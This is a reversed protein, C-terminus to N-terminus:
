AAKGRARNMGIEILERRAALLVFTAFCGAAVVFQQLAAVTAPAHWSALMMVVGAVAALSATRAVTVWSLAAEAAGFCYCPHQRGAGVERALVYSFFSLVVCATGAGAPGALRLLLWAGLGVEWTGLAMGLWPRARTAVRYDVFAFSAMLPNRMKQLGSIVFTIGVLDLAIGLLADSGITSGLQRVLDAMLAFGHM